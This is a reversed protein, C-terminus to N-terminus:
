PFCAEMSVRRAAKAIVRCTVAPAKVAGVDM